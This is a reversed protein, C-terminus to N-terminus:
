RQVILVRNEDTYTVAGHEGGCNWCSSWVVERRAEGFALAIAVPDNQLLFSSAHRYRGDPLVWLAAVWSGVRSKASVVLLDDGFTPSWRVPSATITFEPHLEASTAGHNMVEAVAGPLFMSLGDRLHLRELEPVAAVIASLQSANMPQEQFPRRSVERPYTITPSPGGCCRFALDLGGQGALATRRAACRHMPGAAAAGAGRIIARGDIDDRTWEAHRTGLALVGDPSACRGLDGQTCAADGWGTGGPYPQGSSGKCAREWEVESCLHRGRETCARAAADRARGTTAPQAPDGPYPLADIDFAPLQVRVLDAEVAPDRGPDGPTSGLSFPGAAISITAGARPVERVTVAVHVGADPTPARLAVPQRPAAAPVTPRATATAADSGQTRRAGCGVLVPLLAALVTPM